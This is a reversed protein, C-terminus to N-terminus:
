LPISGMLGVKIRIHRIPINLELMSFKNSKILKFFSAGEGPQQSISM